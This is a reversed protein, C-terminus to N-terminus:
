LPVDRHPAPVGAPDPLVAAHLRLRGLVVAPRVQRDHHQLQGVCPKVGYIFQGEKKGNLAIDKLDVGPALDVNGPMDWPQGSQFVICRRSRGAASCTASCTRTAASGRCSGCARRRSAISASRSTRPRREEAPQRRRRVRQRHRHRHERRRRDLAAGLHLQREAHHGQAWRKNAIFQLSDYTMKGDNRETMTSAASRRTRGALESRSSRRTPSARRAKSAPSTSSRTRCCSIASALPQRGQTVDCQAQFAASPENYGGWNAQVDHSRSGVYSAELSSAAM